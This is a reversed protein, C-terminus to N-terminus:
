SNWASSGVGGLFGSSGTWTTSSPGSPLSRYSSSSSRMLSSSRVCNGAATLTGPLQIGKARIPPPLGRPLTGDSRVPAPVPAPRRHASPPLAKFPLAPLSSRRRLRRTPQVATSMTPRVATFMNMEALPSGEDDILLQRNTLLIAWPAEASLVAHRGRHLVLLGAPQHLLAAALTTMTTTMVLECRAARARDGSIHFQSM